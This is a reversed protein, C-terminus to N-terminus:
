SNYSRHLKERKKTFVKSKITQNIENRLLNFTYSLIKLCDENSIPKGSHIYNNRIRKFGMIKEYNKLRLKHSLNLVELITDITWEKSTILKDFRKKNITSSGKLFKNWKGDIDKELVLWSGLFSQSFQLDEYLMEAELYLQLKEILMHNDLINSEIDLIQVLQEKSLIKVNDKSFDRYTTKRMVGDTIMWYDHLPWIQKKIPDYHYESFERKHIPSFLYGEFLLLSFFTNVIDLIKHEDKTKICLQLDSFFILVSDKITYEFCYEGEVEDNKIAKELSFDKPLDEIWIHNPWPRFSLQLDLSYVKILSSPPEYINKCIDNINSKAFQQPDHTILNGKIFWCNSFNESQLCFPVKKLFEMDIVFRFFDDFIRPISFFDMKIKLKDCNTTLENWNIPGIISVRKDIIPNTPFIDQDFIILQYEIPKLLWIVKIECIELGYSSPPCKTEIWEKEEDTLKEAEHRIEDIYANFWNKILILNNHEVEM